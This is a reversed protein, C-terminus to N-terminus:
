DPLTHVFESRYVTSHIIDGSVFNFVKCLALSIPVEVVLELLLSICTYYNSLSTIKYAPM